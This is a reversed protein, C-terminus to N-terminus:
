WLISKGTFEKQGIISGRDFDTLLGINLQFARM